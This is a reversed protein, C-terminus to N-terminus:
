KLSVLQVTVTKTLPNATFRMVGTVQKLRCYVAAAKPLLRSSAQLVQFRFEGSSGGSGLYATVIADFTFMESANDQFRLTRAGSVESPSFQQEPGVQSTYGFLAANAQSKGDKGNDANIVKTTGSPSNVGIVNLDLLPLYTQASNNTLSLNLQFVNGGISVNSIAQSVRTTIDVKSRQDVLVSTASGPVTIYKGIQGPQIGRVRFSYQGNSLNNFAYSTTGAGVDAVFQWDSNGPTTQEIEFGQEGGVPTWQLTFSGDFDM